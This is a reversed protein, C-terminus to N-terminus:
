PCGKDKGATCFRFVKGQQPFDMGRSVQLFIGPAYVPELFANMRKGINARM